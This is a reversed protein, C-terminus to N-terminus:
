RPEQHEFAASLLGSSHDSTLPLGSHLWVQYSFAEAELEDVADWVNSDPEDSVATENDEAESLSSGSPSPLQDEILTCVLKTPDDSEGLRHRPTHGLVIHGIEHLVTNTIHFRGMTKDYVIVDVDDRPSWAGTTSRKVHESLVVGFVKIPRQRQQSVGEVFADLSWPRPIPYNALVRRARREARGLRM